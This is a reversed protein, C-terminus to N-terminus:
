SVFTRRSSFPFTVCMSYLLLLMEHFDIWEMDTIGLNWIPLKITTQPAPIAYLPEPPEGRVLVVVDDNGDIGVQDVMWVGPQDQNIRANVPFLRVRMVVVVLSRKQM